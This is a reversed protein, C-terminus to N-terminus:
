SMADSLVSSSASPLDQNGYTRASACHVGAIAHIPISADATAIPGSTWIYLLMCVRWDGGSEVGLPVAIAAHDPICRLYGGWGKEGDLMIDRRKREEKNEERKKKERRRM